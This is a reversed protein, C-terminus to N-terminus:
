DDLQEGYEEALMFYSKASREAATRAETSVHEDVSTLLGIKGRVYARYCMYFALMHLLEEDESMEIYKNIFLDRFDRLGHYDLDMAMFALDAAVDICRLSENFEICDFIAVDEELCINGSHLDGHCECVKNHQIRQAFLESKKLFRATLREIKAFRRKPLVSGGVYPRTETFNDHINKSVAEVEGFHKVRASRDALGYFPILKEIIRLIDKKQLEGRAIVRGMMKEESLRRMKVAYEEPAEGEGWSFGGKCRHLTITQLYIKPCLRRNLRLEEECYFKRKALSTFDLFEFYAPKKFKYVYQGAILVYSIHTQILEVSEAQHPYNAKDMLWQVYAPLKATM